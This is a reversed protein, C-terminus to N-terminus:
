EQSQSRIGGLQKTAENALSLLAQVEMSVGLKQERSQKARKATKSYSHDFMVSLREEGYGSDGLSDREVLKKINDDIEDDSVDDEEEEETENGFDYSEDTETQTKSRLPGKCGNASRKLSQSSHM